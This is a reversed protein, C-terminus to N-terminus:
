LGSGRDEPQTNPTRKRQKVYLMFSTLKVIIQAFPATLIHFLAMRTTIVSFQINMGQLFHLHGRCLDINSSFAGIWRHMKQM